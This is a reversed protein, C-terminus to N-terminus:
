KRNIKKLQPIIVINNEATCHLSDAGHICLDIGNEWNVGIGWGQWM